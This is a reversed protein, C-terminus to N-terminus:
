IFFSCSGCSDNEVCGFQENRTVDFMIRYWDEGTSIRFLTLFAQLFNEFGIDYQIGIIQQNTLPNTVQNLKYTISKFLFVSLVSFLFYVLFLLGSVNLLSPLSFIITTVLKQLGEMSKVLKLTRVIRFIRIIKIISSGVNGGDTIKVYDFVLDVISACVM